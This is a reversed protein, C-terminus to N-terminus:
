VVGFLVLGDSPSAEIMSSQLIHFISENAISGPRNQGPTIIGIRGWDM